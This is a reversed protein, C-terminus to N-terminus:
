LTRVNLEACKQEFTALTDKAWPKAFNNRTRLISDNSIVQGETPIGYLYIKHQEKLGAPKGNKDIAIKGTSLQENVWEKIIGKNLLRDYLPHNKIRLNGKQIRANLLYQFDKEMYKNKLRISNGAQTVSATDSFIFKVFGERMLCFFKESVERPPGYALHNINPFWKDEFAKQSNATFGVANNIKVIQEFGERLAATAAAMPSHFEGFETMQLCYNSLDLIFEQYNTDLPLKSYLMPNVLAFLSFLKEQSDDHLFALISENDLGNFEPILPYFAYKVELDLIPIIEEIFDIKRNQALLGNLWEDTMFALTRKNSNSYANVPMNPLNRRSFPYMIPEHGSSLYHYEDEKKYFIGGRGETLELMADLFTLGTGYIAVDARAPIESLREVPYVEDIITYSAEPDQKLHSFSTSEYSHGTALIVSDYQFPIEGAAGTLISKDEVIDLDCIRERVLQIEISPHKEKIVAIVADIFYYGLLERTCLHDWAPEKASISHKQLWQILSQQNPNGNKADEEWCTIDAIYRNVLFYDPLDTHFNPGTGFHNDKNFWHIQIKRNGLLTNNIKERGLKVFTDLAYFGKPGAGVIAIHFDTPSSIPLQNVTKVFSKLENPLNLLESDLSSSNWIM